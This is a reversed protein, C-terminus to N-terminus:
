RHPRVTRKRRNRKGTVQTTIYRKDACYHPNNHEAKLTYKQAASAQNQNPKVTNYVQQLVGKERLQPTPFSNRDNPNRLERGYLLFAPTYKTSEKVSTNLAFNFESLYKDWQKHHEDILTSIM